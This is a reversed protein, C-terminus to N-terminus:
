SPAAFRPGVAPDSPAQLNHAAHRPRQLHLRHLDHHRRRCPQESSQLRKTISPLCFLSPSLHSGVTGAPNDLGGYRANVSFFKTDKPSDRINGVLKQVSTSLREYAVQNSSRLRLLEAKAAAWSKGDDIPM